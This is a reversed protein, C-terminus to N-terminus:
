SVRMDNRDPLAGTVKNSLMRKCDQADGGNQVLSFVKSDKVSWWLQISIPLIIIVSENLLLAAAATFILVKKSEYYILNCQMTTLYVGNNNSFILM